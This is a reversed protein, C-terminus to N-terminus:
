LRPKISKKLILYSNSGKKIKPQELLEKKRPVDKKSLLFVSYPKSILKYM